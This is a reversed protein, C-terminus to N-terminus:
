RRISLISVKSTDDLINLPGDLVDPKQKVYHVDTDNSFLGLDDNNSSIILGDESGVLSNPPLSAASSPTKSKNRISAATLVPDDDGTDSDLVISRSSRHSTNMVFSPRKDHFM